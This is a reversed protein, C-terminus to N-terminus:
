QIKRAKKSLESPSYYLKDLGLGYMKNIATNIKSGTYIAEYYLDQHNSVNMSKLTKIIQDNTFHTGELDFKKELISLILLATYCFLFNAKIRDELRHYYPRGELNTKMTRFRDEIVNRQSSIALVEQATDDLNSAVAYFGDYKEEETIKDEDLKYQDQLTKGDKDTRKLFRRIDNPGKKIQDPETATALLQKAREVQKNRVARQYEMYKRSFTIIVYQEITGKAKVKKTKGNKLEKLEYLGLDVAKNAPLVKYIVDDYYKRNEPDKIDFEKMFQISASKNNSLLKYNEDKFVLEQLDKSMKKVSQSVVFARGGMSAFQRINFSGIGSDACYVFRIIGMEILAKMVPIATLQESTNGPHICMSIPIGDKDVMLGMEVIPNPRHEKSVGYKRLGKKVEGTEEDVYDDDACEIESYFNTCDYYVVSTNRPIVTTSSKYLYELYEDYHEVLLDMFRLVQQHSFDPKEYYNSLTSVNHLKSGPDLIKCFTIFRNIANCDFEIKTDAQISDIFKKINLDHYIQQLVFYGINTTTSKSVVSDSFPLKKNFDIDETIPVTGNKAQENFEAVKKKAYELPDDTIKLLDNHKGIRYVNKTTTTKGNRIGMQVFYTPNKSKRDYNLKM